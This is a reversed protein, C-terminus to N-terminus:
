KYALLGAGCHWLLCVQLCHRSHCSLPACPGSSQLCLRHPLPCGPPKGCLIRWVHWESDSRDSWRQTSAAHLCPFCYFFHWDNDTVQQVSLKFPLSFIADERLLSISLNIGGYNFIIGCEILLCETSAWCEELCTAPWVTLWMYVLLFCSCFDFWLLEDECLISMLASCSQLHSILM